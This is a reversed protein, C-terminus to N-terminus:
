AKLYILLLWRKSNIYNNVELVKVREEEGRKEKYNEEKKEGKREEGKVEKKSLSILYSIQSKNCIILM